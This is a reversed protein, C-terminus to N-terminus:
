LVRIKRTYHISLRMEAKRTVRATVITSRKGRAKIIIVPRSAIDALYTM